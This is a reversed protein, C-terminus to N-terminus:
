GAGASHVIGEDDGVGHQLAGNVDGDGLGPLVAAGGGPGREDGHLQQPVVLGEAQGAPSSGGNFQGAGVLVGFVGVDPGVGEGAQGLILEQIDIAVFHIIDRLGGRDTG